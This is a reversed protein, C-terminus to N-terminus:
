VAKFHPFPERCALCRWLSQCSTAAFRSLEETQTSGCQPCTLATSRARTPGLSVLVPRGGSPPAIGAAALKRRGDDSLDDTSWAPLLVTRVEVHQCGYAALATVVDDRMAELAPCGSYTPTLEVVVHGRDDVRVDRLVGLDALSLFPLEPDTVQALVERLDGVTPVRDKAGTM